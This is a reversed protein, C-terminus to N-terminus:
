WGKGSLHGRKRLVWWTKGCPAAWLSTAFSSGPPKHDGQLQLRHGGTTMQMPVVAEWLLTVEGPSLGPAVREWAAADLPVDGQGDWGAGQGHARSHRAVTAGPEPPCSKGQGM